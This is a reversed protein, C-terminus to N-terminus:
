ILDVSSDTIINDDDYKFSIMYGDTTYHISIRPANIGTSLFLYEGNPHLTMVDDLTQGISLTDFDSKSLSADYIQHLIQARMGNEDFWIIAVSDEGRYVAQYQYLGPADDYPPKYADYAIMLKRKRLCEIPYRENLKDISENSQVIDELEEASYVTTILETINKDEPSPTIQLENTEDFNEPLVTEASSEPLVSNQACGVLTEFCVLLCLIGSIVSLRKM